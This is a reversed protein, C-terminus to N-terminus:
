QHYRKQFLQSIKRGWQVLLPQYALSFRIRGSRGNFAKVPLPSPMAAQVLFFPEAATRGGGKAQDQSVAIAGGGMWGLAASPLRDQQFPILRVRNVPIMAGAEGWLRVEIGYPKEEFVESADDQSVVASFRYGKEGLISGLYEGRDFWRGVLTEKRAPVWRGEAAAKVTLQEQMNRLESANELAADLQSRVPSIDAIVNQLANREMASLEDVKGDAQMILYDLERNEMVMLPQGARVVSGPAVLLRTVYGPAGSSVQMYPEPELIGPAMVHRPMPVFAAFLLFLILPLFVVGLARRRCRQLKPSSFLYVLYQISPKLIWLAGGVVAILLGIILWRDAVFLIIGASVMVRYAWSLIGYVTLEVQERAERTPSHSDQCGFLKGEILHQLHGDARQHLNPIDILDSLIYYGDFRLLPNVNFIVTSVSAVFMINYALAHLLGEGSAAWYFAALAAVFIEALMGAGGVLARHWRSRFSWSSTADVYPLPTLMMFMAGMTHVEGGYRHCVAAHGFEHIAKVMILALYLLFINDPSLVGQAKSFATDAHEAVLKLAWLVVALWVAFGAPSVIMAILRSFKQLLPEPDFLPVRFFMFSLLKSKLEKQRNREYREFLRKSDPPVEASLLNMSYLQGLLKVVEEQGPTSDPFQEMSELWVAEVNKDAGLHSVFRYAEPSLRFFMNNFPDHLVYWKEGRYIQRQVAVTARLTLRLSSVLHWSDSFTNGSSEM